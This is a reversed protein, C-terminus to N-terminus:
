EWPLFYWLVFIRKFFYVVVYSVLLSFLFDRYVVKALEYNSGQLLLEARSCPFLHMRPGFLSFSVALHIGRLAAPPRGQPTHPAGPGLVEPHCTLVSWGPCPQRACVAGAVTRAGLSM